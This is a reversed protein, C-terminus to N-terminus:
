RSRRTRSSRAAGHLARAVGAPARARRAGCLRARAVVRAARRARRRPVRRRPRGGSGSRGRPRELGRRPPAAVAPAGARPRGAAHGRAAPPPPVRHRPPGAARDARRRAGPASCRCALRADRAVADCRAPALTDLISIRRLFTLEAESLGALVEARLYEALDHDAGDFGDVDGLSLAALSLAAPWGRTRELLRDVQAARLRLGAADLLMAAELRSLALDEAALELVLGHARLRAIPAPPGTRCALALVSGRPLQAAARLLEGIAEPPAHQADDAVIVQPRGSAAAAETTRVAAGTGAGPSLAFWAFPREDRAAWEALLTTKGYGAPAAALVIPQERVAVLRRVLAARPATGPRLRPPSPARPLLDIVHATGRSM